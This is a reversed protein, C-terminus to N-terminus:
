YKWMPSHWGKLGPVSDPATFEYATFRFQASDTSTLIVRGLMRDWGTILNKEAETLVFEANFYSSGPAVFVRQAVLGDALSGVAITGYSGTVGPARDRMRVAVKMEGTGAASMPTLQGMWVKIGTTAYLFTSDDDAGAIGEDIRLYSTAHTGGPASQFKSASSSLTSIPLATQVM